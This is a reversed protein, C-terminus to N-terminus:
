EGDEEVAAKVITIAEPPLGELKIADVYCVMEVTTAEGPELTKPLRLEKIWLKKTIDEKGSFIKFDDSVQGLTITIM